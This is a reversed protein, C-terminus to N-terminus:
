RAHEYTDPRGKIHSTSIITLGCTACRPWLGPARTIRHPKLAAATGPGVVADLAADRHAEDRKECFEDPFACTSGDAHKVM